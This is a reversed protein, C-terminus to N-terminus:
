KETEERAEPLVPWEDRSWQLEAWAKVEDVLEPKEDYSRTQRWREVEQRQALRRAVESAQMVSALKRKQAPNEAAAQRLIKWVKVVRGEQAELDVTDKKLTLTPSYYLSDSPITPASDTASQIYLAEALEIPTQGMANEVFALAPNMKLMAQLIRHGSDKKVVQHMPFQGDGSMMTLAEGGTHRHLTTLTETRGKQQRSTELWRALPTMGTPAESCRELALEQLLPKDVLTLLDDLKVAHTAVAYLALHLINRGLADRATPNAGAALLIRIAEVRGLSFALSLPTFGETSKTELSQPEANILYKILERYREGTTRAM